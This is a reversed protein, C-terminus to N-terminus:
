PLEVLVSLRQKQEPRLASLFEDLLQRKFDKFEKEAAQEYERAVYLLQQMDESNDIHVVVERRSLFRMLNHGAFGRAAYQSLLDLQHESLLAKLAEATKRDREVRLEHMKPPRRERAALNLEAFSRETEEDRFRKEIQTAQDILDQNANVSEIANGPHLAELLLNERVGMNLRPFEGTSPYPRGSPNPVVKSGLLDRLRDHTELSLVSAADVLTELRSAYDRSSDARFKSAKVALEDRENTCGVYEAIGSAFILALITGDKGPGEMGKQRAVTRSYANFNNKGMIRELQPEVFRDLPVILESRDHTAEFTNLREISIRLLEKLEADAAADLGLEDRIDAANCLIKLAGFGRADSAISEPSGPLTQAQLIPSMVVSVVLTVILGLRVVFRRNTDM